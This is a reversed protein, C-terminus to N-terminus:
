TARRRARRAVAAWVAFRDVGDAAAEVLEALARLRGSVAQCVLTLRSPVLFTAVFAERAQEFDAVAMGFDALSVAVPDPSRSDDMSLWVRM